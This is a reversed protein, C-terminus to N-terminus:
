LYRNMKRAKLAEVVKRVDQSKDKPLVLVADGSDVVVANSLGVVALPRKGAMVICGDCDLVIAGDGVVVNGRLDTARVEPLANFSGVDSWGFDGPVVAINDAREAVAYDISISPLTSFMKKLVTSYTKKKMAARLHVLGKGLDPLYQEFATMMVDARFVFIGANWLYERSELYSQATERNPKEVFAVVKHAGSATGSIPAGLRIYGYGTEPRNPKIGITVIHGDAAARAATLLTDRFGEVNAVHQDSPLVALIGKPDVAAVHATALGIAPATNKAEPEVLVNKKPLGKLFKQVSAAHAKGCVVFTDKNEALGALRAATEVILPSSSVLELFQKPRAARSLPWFRTGSGGAIIVPFLRLANSSKKM